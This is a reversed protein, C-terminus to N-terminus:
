SKTVSKLLQKQRVRGTAVMGALGLGVLSFVGPEPVESVTVTLASVNESNFMVRRTVTDASTPVALLFYVSSDYTGDITQGFSQDYRPSPVFMHQGGFVRNVAQLVDGNATYGFQNSAVADFYNGGRLSGSNQVLVVGNSGTVSTWEHSVGNVSVSVKFNPGQDSRYDNEISSVSNSWAAPDVDTTISETFELGDLRQGPLGFVGDHDEGYGIKGTTTVTWLVSAHAAAGYLLLLVGGVATMLKMKM